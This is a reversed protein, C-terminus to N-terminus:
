GRAPGSRVSIFLVLDSPLKIDTANEIERIDEAALETPCPPREELGIWKMVSM